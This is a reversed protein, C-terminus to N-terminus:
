LEKRLFCASKVFGDMESLFSKLNTYSLRMVNGVLGTFALSDPYVRAFQTLASPALALSSIASAYYQEQIKKLEAANTKKECVTFYDTLFSVLKTSELTRFTLLICADEGGQRFDCDVLDAGIQSLGSLFIENKTILAPILVEYFSFLLQGYTEYLKERKQFKIGFSLYNSDSKGKIATYNEKAKEYNEHYSLQKGACTLRSPAKLENIKQSVESVSMNGSLFVTMSPAQYYKEMFRSLSSNHILQLQSLSPIRDNSIPSSFYLNSLCGQKTQYIPSSENKQMSAMNKKKFEDLDNETFKPSLIRSLFSKTPAFIDGKCSISFATYSYDIFSDALALQQSLSEQCQSNMLMEKLLYSTGAFVKGSNITEDHIFSGNPIYILSSSVLSKRPIFVINLGNDLKQEYFPASLKSLDTKIM